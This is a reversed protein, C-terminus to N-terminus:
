EEDFVALSVQHGSLAMNAANSDQILLDAWNNINANRKEGEALSFPVMFNTVVDEGEDSSVATEVQLKYAQGQKDVLM